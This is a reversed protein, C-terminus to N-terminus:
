RSGGKQMARVHLVVAWRDREAIRDALPAMNGQGLTILHFLQGDRMAKARDASLSPPRLMGRAVAGGDGEGGPGHCPSCMRAYVVGGRALTDADGPAEPNALERGAREADAPTAAYRFPLAGRPVTGEPLPLDTFGTPTAARDQAQAAPGRAMDPFFELGPRTVDRVLVARLAFVAAGAVAISGVIGGWNGRVVGIPAGRPDTGTDSM